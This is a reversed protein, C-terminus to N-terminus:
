KCNSDQELQCEVFNQKQIQWIHFETTASKGDHDFKYTVKESEPKSDRHTTRTEFTHRENMIASIAARADKVRHVNLFKRYWYSLPERNALVQAFRSNADRVLHEVLERAQDGYWDYQYKTYVDASLPHILFIGEAAKGKEQLLHPGVSWDSMMIRPKKIWPILGIQDILTMAHVEDGVFFVCDINKKLLEVPNPAEDSYTTAVVHKGAMVVQKNFENALYESYAENHKAKVIWYQKAQLNEVAWDEATAAQNDDTPSLRFVPYPSADPLNSPLLDPTTETALIVPVPQEIQLYKPLAYKSQTSLLHGVVMLTDNREALDEAVKQAENPDGGDNERDAVVNIGDITGIPGERNFGEWVEQTTDEIPNFSGAVYVRYVQPGTWWNTIRAVIVLSLIAAVIQSLLNKNVFRWGAIFFRRIRSQKANIPNHM